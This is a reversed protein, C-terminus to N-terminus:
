EKDIIKIAEEFDKVVYAEKKEFIKIGKVAARGGLLIKCNSYQNKVMEITELADDIHHLLNLVLFLIDPTFKSVAKAIQESPLDAGLNKTIFGKTELYSWLALPILDHRDGAVCSILVKKSKKLNIKKENLGINALILRVIETAIHEEFIEIRNLEWLLGIEAMAPLIFELIARDPSKLNEIFKIASHLDGNILSQVIPNKTESISFKLNKVLKEVNEPLEKHLKELPASLETSEPPNIIGQIAIIWSELLTSLYVNGSERVTFARIYWNIEDEFSEFLSYKYITKLMLGFNNAYDFLNQLERESSCILRHCSWEVELRKKVLASLWQFENTFIRAASESIKFDM